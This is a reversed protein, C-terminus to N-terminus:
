CFQNEYEILAPRHSSQLAIGDAAVVRHQFLLLGDRAFAEDCRHKEIVVILQEVVSDVDACDAGDCFFFVRDATGRSQEVGDAHGDVFDAVGLPV